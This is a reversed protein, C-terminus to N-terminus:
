LTRQIERLRERHQSTEIHLRKLMDSVIPSDGRFHEFVKKELIAEEMGAATSLAERFSPSSARAKELMARVFEIFAQITYTRARDESFTVEGMAAKESLHEVWQAHELEEHQMTVWFDRQEPIKAAFLQYLEALLLEQQILLTVIKTQFPQLTM